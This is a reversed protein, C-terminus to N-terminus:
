GLVESTLTKEKRIAAQSSKGELASDVAALLMGGGRAKRQGQRPLCSAGLNHCTGELVGLSLCDHHPPGNGDARWEGSKRNCPSCDLMSKKLGLSPGAAQEESPDRSGGEAGGDLMDWTGSGDQKGAGTTGALAGPGLATEKVNVEPSAGAKAGFASCAAGSNWSEANPSLM